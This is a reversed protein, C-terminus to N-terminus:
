GDVTTDDEPLGPYMEPLGIVNTVWPLVVDVIVDKNEIEVGNVPVQVVELVM